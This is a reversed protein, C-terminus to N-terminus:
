WSVDFIKCFTNSQALFNKKVLTNIVKLSSFILLWSYKWYKYSQIKLCWLILDIIKRDFNYRYILHGNRAIDYVADKFYFPFYKKPGIDVKERKFVFSNDWKRHDHLFKAINQVM